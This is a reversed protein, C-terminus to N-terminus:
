KDAEMALGHHLVAFILPQDGAAQFSHREGTRKLGLDGPLLDDGSNEAATGQLILAWEEGQHGHEPFVAGPTMLVIGCEADTLRPGGDFHLAFVGPMTSRTWPEGPYQDIDRLLGRIREGPLDFLEGLRKAYGVFRNQPQAGAVIRARLEPSLSNVAPSYHVVLDKLEDMREGLAADQEVRQAILEREEPTALGMLYDLLLTDSPSMM